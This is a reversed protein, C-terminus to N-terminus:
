KKPFIIKSWILRLNARNFFILNFILLFSPNYLKFWYFSIGNFHSFKHNAFNCICKSMFPLPKHMLNRLNKRSRAESHKTRVAVLKSYPFIKGFMQISANWLCWIFLFTIIIVCFANVLFSFM